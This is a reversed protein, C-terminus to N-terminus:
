NSIKSQRNDISFGACDIGTKQNEIM